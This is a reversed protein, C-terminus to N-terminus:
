DDDCRKLVGALAPDVTWREEPLHHQRAWAVVLPDSGAAELLEGGLRDHTVYSGARARLGGSRGAWGAIRDRGAAIAVLTVAARGNAGLHSQVKGVDHLLAAALAATPVGAGDANGLDRAVERAVAVAHRQDPGSM